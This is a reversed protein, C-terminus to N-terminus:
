ALCSETLEVSTFEKSKLSDRAQAITLKNLESM